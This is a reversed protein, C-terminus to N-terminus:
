SFNRAFPGNPLYKDQVMGVGNAADDDCSM